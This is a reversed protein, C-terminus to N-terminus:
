LRTGGLAVNLEQGISHTPQFGLLRFAKAIGTQSHMVDGARFGQYVPAYGALHPLDLALWCRLLKFLENLSTRVNPAVKHAQNVAEPDSGTAAPLNMQVGNEVFCFDRSTEGTGNIHVAEGAIM